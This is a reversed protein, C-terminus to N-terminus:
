NQVNWKGYLSENVKMEAADLKQQVLEKYQWDIYDQVVQDKINEYKSFVSGPETKETCRLLYLSGNEEVIGSTEGAKMRAAAQAVPSRANHRDNGLNFSLEQATQGDSYMRAADALSVGQKLKAEAERLRATAQKKRAPDAEHDENLFSVSLSLVRASGPTQYLEQKYQEYFAKLPQDDEHSRLKALMGRKVAATANTMVYEFYADETYQVPGYIVEGAAAAKERRMNEQELQRVFGAYSVDGLVGEDAAIRQRIKMRVADDLAQQKLMQLPVEGGFSSTWFSATQAAGYKERFYSMVGSKQRQAAKEFEPLVIPMGDVTAIADSGGTVAEKPMLKEKAFAASACVSLVLCGAIAWIYKMRSRGSKIM